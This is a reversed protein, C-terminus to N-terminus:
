AAVRKVEKKKRKKKRSSKRKRLGFIMEIEDVLARVEAAAQSKPAYTTVGQGSAPAEQYAVRFGLEAGLVDLGSEALVERAGQGLSTRSVKRTILVAAKLEPRVLKASQVLELSEAIAWADLASPGCPLLVLDCVMLAARQIEGHRPPCDIVVVDYAEALAPLQDPRHLGQGMGVVTPAECGLELAVEAWTRSSAQPDADVLLVKRRRALLESAIAISTTTKGSGGKQGALAIIM